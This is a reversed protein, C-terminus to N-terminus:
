IAQGNCDCTDSSPFSHFHKINKCITRYSYCDRMKCVLVSDSFGHITDPTHHDTFKTKCVSVCVM